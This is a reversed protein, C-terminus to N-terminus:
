HSAAGHMKMLQQRKQTMQDILGETQPDHEKMATVIADLLENQANQIEQNQMAEVQAKRYTMIKEQFQKMLAERETDTVKTDQLQEQLKEIEAQEQNPSHGKSKMEKILLDNFAQEQKQLEPHAQITERQIQELRKQAVVYEDRAQQFAQQQEEQAPSVGAQPTPAGQQEAHLPTIAIFAAFFTVFIRAQIQSMSAFIAKCQQFYTMEFLVGPQKHTYFRPICNGYISKPLYNKQLM